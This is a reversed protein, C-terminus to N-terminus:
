NIRRRKRPKEDSTAFPRKLSGLWGWLNWLGPQSAKEELPELPHISEERFRNHLAKWLISGHEEFRSEDRCDVEALVVGVLFATDNVWIVEFNVRQGRSDVLGTLVRVIDRTTLLPSIGAIRFTSRVSMGRGLPDSLPSELDITYPSLHFHLKNRGYFCRSIECGEDFNWLATKNISVGSPFNEQNYIKRTLGYFVAGTMYADFAADHAQERLQERGDLTFVRDWEPYSLITQEYLTGLATRSWPNEWGCYESAMTKTDYVVPFYSHILEKCEEWTHPLVPSHFHTM